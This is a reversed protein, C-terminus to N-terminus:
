QSEEKHINVPFLTAALASVLVTIIIISWGESIKSILPLYNFCLSAIISLLIVIFINKNSRAPTIIIAIFMGYLAIGMSNTLIVPMFQSAVAGVATGTTWGIVPTLILGVMYATTLAKKRQM